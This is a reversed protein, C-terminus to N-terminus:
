HKYFAIVDGSQAAWCGIGRCVCNTCNCGCIKWNDPIITNKEIINTEPLNYPNNPKLGTWGSFLVHLNVPLPGNKAIWTNVTLYAKTFALFECHPNNVATQVMHEFYPLGFIDGSVHYRFYRTTKVFDNIAKWYSEPDQLLIATNKAYSNLVSPRIRALKKAYCDKQCTNVCVAPCTGGCIHGCGPLTSISPISRMKNNSQSIVPSLKEGNQIRDIYSQLAARASDNYNNSM